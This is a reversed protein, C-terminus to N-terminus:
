RTLVGAVKEYLRNERISFLPVNLVGESSMLGTLYIEVGDKRVYFELSLSQDPRIRCNALFLEYYKNQHKGNVFRISGRKMEPRSDSSIALQVDTYIQLQGKWLGNFSNCDLAFIPTSLLSLFFVAILPQFATKM